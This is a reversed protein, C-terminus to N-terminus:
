RRAANRKGEQREKISDGQSRDRVRKRLKAEKRELKEPTWNVSPATNPLSALFLIIDAHKAFM